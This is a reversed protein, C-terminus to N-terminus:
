GASRELAALVAEVEAKIRTPPVRVAVVYPHGKPDFGRNRFHRLFDPGSRGSDRGCYLLSDRHVIVAARGPFRRQVELSFQALPIGQANGIEVVVVTDHTRAPAADLINRCTKRAEIADEALSLLKDPLGGGRPGPELLAPLEAVAIPWDPFKRTMADFALGWAFDPDEGCLKRVFGLVDPVTVLDHRVLMSMTTTPKGTAPLIAHVNVPPPVTWAGIHHDVWTVELHGPLNAWTPPAPIDLVMVAGQIDALIPRIDKSKTPHLRVNGPDFQACIMAAAGLGDRDVDHVVQLSASIEDM